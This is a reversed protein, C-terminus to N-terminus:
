MWLQRRCNEAGCRCIMPDDGDEKQSEGTKDDEDDDKDLYDFTLETGEAINKYAFFALQYIRFDYKNYSVTYQRCNPDSSHNMFRTPGGMMEGDVVYCEDEQLGYEGVHKDLSYQYSAKGHGAKDIRDDAEETTIVEGRYTDIFQGEQIDVLTRM